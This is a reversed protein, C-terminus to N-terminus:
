TASRAHHESLRREHAPGVALEVRVAVAIPRLRPVDHGRDDPVDPREDYARLLDRPAVDDYGQHALEAAGDPLGVMRGATRGRHDPLVHLGSAGPRLSGTSKRWGRTRGRRTEPRVQRRDQLQLVMWQPHIGM